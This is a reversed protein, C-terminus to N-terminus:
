SIQCDQIEELTALRSVHLQSMVGLIEDAKEARHRQRLDGLQGDVVDVVQIFGQGDAAVVFGGFPGEDVLKHLYSYITKHPRQPNTESQM